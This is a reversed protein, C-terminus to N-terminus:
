RQGPFVVTGSDPNEIKELLSKTKDSVEPNPDRRLRKFADRAAARNFEYYWNMAELRINLDELDDFMIKELEPNLAIGAAAIRERAEIVRQKNDIDFYQSSLRLLDRTTRPQYTESKEPALRRALVAKPDPRFQARQSAWWEQYAKALQRRKKIPTQETYGFDQGTIIAFAKAAAASERRNQQNIVQVLFDVGSGDGLLALTIAYQIKPATRREAEFVTRVVPLAKKDGLFGLANVANYQLIEAARIRYTERNEPATAREDLAILSQVGRPLEQRAIALLTELAPQYRAKAIVAMADVALQAKEAPTEPLRQPDVGPPLGEQLLRLCAEPTPDIGNLKLEREDSTLPEQTTAPLAKPTANPPPAAGTLAEFIGFLLIPVLLAKSIRGLVVTRMSSWSATTKKTHRSIHGKM